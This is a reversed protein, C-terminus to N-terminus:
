GSLLLIPTFNTTRSGLFVVLWWWTETLVGNVVGHKQQVQKCYTSLFVLVHDHVFNEDLICNM